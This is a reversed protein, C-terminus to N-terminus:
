SARPPVARALLEVDGYLAAHPAAALERARVADAVDFLAYYIPGTYSDNSIEGTRALHVLATRIAHQVTDDIVHGPATLADAKVTWQRGSHEIAVFVARQQKAVHYATYFTDPNTADPILEAPCPTPLPQMILM